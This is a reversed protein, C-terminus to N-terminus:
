STDGMLAKFFEPEKFPEAQVKGTVPVLQGTGPIWDMVMADGPVFIKNASFLGSTKMQGPILKFMESRPNHDELGGTLLRVPPSPTALHEKLSTIKYACLQAVYARCVTAGDEVRVGAVDVTDAVVSTALLFSTVAILLRRLPHTPFM